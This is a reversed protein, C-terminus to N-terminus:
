LALKMIYLVYNVGLVRESSLLLRHNKTIKDKSLTIFGIRKGCLINSVMSHLFLLLTTSLIIKGTISIPDVFSKSLFFSIELCFTKKSKGTRFASFGHLHGMHLPWRLGNNLIQYIKVKSCM